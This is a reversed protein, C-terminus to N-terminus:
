WFSHKPYLLGQLFGFLTDKFQYFLQPSYNCDILNTYQQTFSFVFVNGFLRESVISIFNNRGLRGKLSQYDPISAELQPLLKQSQAYSFSSEIKQPLINTGTYKSEEGRISLLLCVIFFLFNSIQKGM